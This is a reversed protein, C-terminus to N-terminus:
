PKQGQGNSLDLSQGLREGTWRSFQEAEGSEPRYKEGRCMHSWWQELTFQGIGPTEFEVHAWGHDDFDPHITSLWNAWPLPGREEVPIPILRAVSRNGVLMHWDEDVLQWEPKHLVIIDNM